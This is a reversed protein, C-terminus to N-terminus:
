LIQNLNAKTNVQIWTLLWQPPKQAKQQVELNLIPKPNRIVFTHTILMLIPLKLLNLSTYLPIKTSKSNSSVRMTKRIILPHNWFAKCLYIKVQKSHNNTQIITILTALSIPILLLEIRIKQSLNKWPKSQSILANRPKVLM